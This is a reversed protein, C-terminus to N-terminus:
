IDIREVVKDLIELYEDITMGGCDYKEQLNRFCQKLYRNNHWNAFLEDHTVDHTKVTGDDWQDFWRFFRSRNIKYGRKELEM